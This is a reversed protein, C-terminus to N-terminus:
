GRNENRYKRPTTGELAKFVKYLYNLNNYGANYCIDIISYDTYILQNKVFNIRLSNIYDSPSINLHKKMSRSLHEPTKECIEYMRASGEKFNEAKRMENLCASLWAPIDGGESRTVFREVLEAVLMRVAASWAFSNTEHESLRHVHRRTRDLFAGGMSLVPPLRNCFFPNDPKILLLNSVSEMLEKTFAINIIEGDNRRRYRHLDDPRIFVADGKNLSVTEDFIEHTLSGECVIFIEFYDHTHVRDIEFDPATYVAYGVGIAPDNFDSFKIKM